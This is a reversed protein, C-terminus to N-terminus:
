GSSAIYSTISVVSYCLGYTRRATENADAMLYISAGVLWLISVVIGLRQWGSM